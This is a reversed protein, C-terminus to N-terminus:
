RGERRIGRARRGPYPRLIRDHGYALILPLRSCRCGHGCCHDPRGTATLEFGGDQGDPQTHGGRSGPPSGARPSSSRPSPSSSCVLLVVPRLASTFTVVDFPHPGAPAGLLMVRLHAIPIM